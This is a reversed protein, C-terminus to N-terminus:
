AAVKAPKNIVKAYTDTLWAYVGDQSPVVGCAIQDDVWTSLYYNDEYLITDEASFRWLKAYEGKKYGNEVRFKNLTAKGLYRAYLLDLSVEFAACLNFFKEIYYEPSEDIYISVVFSKAKIKVNLANPTFYELDDSSTHGDMAYMVASEVNGSSDIIAQSMIFHWADVLETVGNQRDATQKSWWAVPLSELFEGIEQGAAIRYDFEGSEGKELWATSYSKTNLENQIEFMERIQQEVQM